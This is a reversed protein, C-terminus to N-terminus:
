KACGLAKGFWPTYKEPQKQLDQELDEIKVWCYDMIEKPDVIIKQGSYFGVLVHDVENETLGNAFKAIYHFVGKEQLDATIGTEEKLRRKGAAIIEEGVRPHGCCTNTWLGGCHYKGSHRQQILLEVQDKNERFIFVSFARHCLARQHVALKEEQGVIQDQENVLIIQETM